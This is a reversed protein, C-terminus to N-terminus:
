LAYLIHWKLGGQIHLVGDLLCASLRKDSQANLRDPADMRNPVLHSAEYFNLPPPLFKPHVLLYGARFKTLQNDLIDGSTM